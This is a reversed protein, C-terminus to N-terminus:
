KFFKSIILILAQNQNYERSEMFHRLNDALQDDLRVQFQNKRRKRDHEAQTLAM